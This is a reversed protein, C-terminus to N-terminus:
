KFLSGPSWLWRYSCRYFAFCGHRTVNVTANVNQHRKMLNDKEQISTPQAVFNQGVYRSSPAPWAHASSTHQHFRTGSPNPHNINEHNPQTTQYSPAFPLCCGKRFFECALITFVDELYIGLTSKDIHHSSPHSTKLSLISHWIIKTKRKIM